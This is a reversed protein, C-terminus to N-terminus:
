DVRLARYMGMFAHPMGGMDADPWFCVLVYNGAPIRYDFSMSTGPAIVGSATGVNERVPPPSENGKKAQNVWARFDKITKGKKLRVINIFHNETARNQFWITGKRTIRPTVKGWKVEDVARIVQGSLSGDVSEGAVTLTRVNRARLRRPAVDVVWYTGAPLDVAMTGPKGPESNVGGRFTTGAELSRLPGVNPGFLRNGDHVFERKTYGPKPELIQLAAERRSTITFGTVGPQITEPLVISHDGKIRVEITQGGAANTSAAGSILSATLVGLATLVAGLRRQVSM